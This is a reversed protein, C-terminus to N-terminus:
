SRGLASAGRLRRAVVPNDVVDLPPAGGVAYATFSILTKAEKQLFFRKSESRGEPIGPVADTVV